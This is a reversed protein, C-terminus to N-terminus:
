RNSGFIWDENHINEPESLSLPIFVLNKPIKPKPSKTTGDMQKHASVVVGVGAMAKVGVSVKVSRGVEVGRTAGVQAGMDAPVTGSAIFGM